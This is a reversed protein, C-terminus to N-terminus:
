LWLCCPPGPQACSGQSSAEGKGRPLPLPLLRLLSSPSLLPHPPRLFAIILNLSPPPPLAFSLRNFCHQLYQERSLWYLFNKMLPFIM